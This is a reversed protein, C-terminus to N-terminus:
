ADRRIIAKAALLSPLYVAVSVAIAVAAYLLWALVIAVGIGELAWTWSAMAHLALMVVLCVLEAAFVQTPSAPLKLRSTVKFSTDWAIVGVIRLAMWFAPFCGLWLILLRAPARGSLLLVASLTVTSLVAVVAALRAWRTKLAEPTPVAIIV